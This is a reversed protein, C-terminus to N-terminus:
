EGAKKKVAERAMFQIPPVGNKEEYKEYYQQHYDEAEWFAGRPQLETVIPKKFKKQATLEASVDQAIKKEEENGYFLISRYQTGVDPGQRNLETPNHARTMFHVVLDRYSIKKPDYTVETSEAHGTEGGSVSKYDPHETKGGSYGVRTFLVGNLGRFESETCWFCGGAFVASPYGEPMSAQIDHGKPIMSEGSCAVASALAAFVGVAAFVLIKRM